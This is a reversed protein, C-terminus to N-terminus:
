IGNQRKVERIAKHLQENKTRFKVENKFKNYTVENLLEEKIRKTDLTTRSSGKRISASFGDLILNNKGIQEMANKLEEKFEKEALDMELQVRKFNKYKEIWEKNIVIDNNKIKVLENM